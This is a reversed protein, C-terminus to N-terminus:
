KNIRNYEVIKGIKVTVWIVYQTTFTIVILTNVEYNTIVNKKSTLTVAQFKLFCILGKIKCSKQM